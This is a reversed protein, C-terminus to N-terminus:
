TNLGSDASYGQQRGAAIGTLVMHAFMTAIAAEHRPDIDGYMARLTNVHHEIFKKFGPLDIGMHKLAEDPWNGQEFLVLILREAREFTLADIPERAM